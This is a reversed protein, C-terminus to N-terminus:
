PTTCKLQSTGEPASGYLPALKHWMNVLSQDESQDLVTAGLGNHGKLRLPNLLWFPCKIPSWRCNPGIAYSVNSPFNKIRDGLVHHKDHTLPLLQCKIGQVSVHMIHHYNLKVKWTKAEHAECTRPFTSWVCKVKVINQKGFDNEATWISTRRKGKM